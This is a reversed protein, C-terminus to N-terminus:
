VERCCGTSRRRLSPAELYTQSDPTSGRNRRLRAAIFDALSTTDLALEPRQRVNVVLEPALLEAAEAGFRDTLVTRVTTELTPRPDTM